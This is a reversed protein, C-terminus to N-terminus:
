RQAKVVPSLYVLSVYAGSARSFQPVGHQQGVAQNGHVNRSCLHPDHDPVERWRSEKEADKTTPLPRSSPIETRQVSSVAMEGPM